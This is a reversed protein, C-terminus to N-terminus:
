PACPTEALVVSNLIRKVREQLAFMTDLERGIAGQVRALEEPSLRKQVAACLYNVCLVERIKLLCGSDGLFLCSDPRTRKEPLSVSWLLNLLLLTEGYQNEIGRGCCSGGEEEECHRCSAVIGTEEMVQWSAGWHSELEGMLRAIHPDGKLLEGCQEYVARAKEIKLFVTGSAAPHTSSKM